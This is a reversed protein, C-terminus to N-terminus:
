HALKQDIFVTYPLKCPAMALGKLACDKMNEIQLFIRRSSPNFLWQVKITCRIILLLDQKNM